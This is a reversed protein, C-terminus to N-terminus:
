RVSILFLLLIWTNRSFPASKSASNTQKIAETLTQSTTSHMTTTEKGFALSKSETTISMKSVCQGSDDFHQDGNCKTRVFFASAFVKQGRKQDPLHLSSSIAIAFFLVCLCFYRHYNM